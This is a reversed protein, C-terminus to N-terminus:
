RIWSRKKALGHLESVDRGNSDRLVWYDHSALKGIFFSRVELSYKTTM